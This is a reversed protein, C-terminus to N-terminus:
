SCSSASRFRGGGLAARPLILFIFTGLLLAFVIASVIMKRGCASPKFLSNVSGAVLGGNADLRFRLATLEQSEKRLQVM